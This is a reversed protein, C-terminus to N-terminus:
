RFPVSYPVNSFSVFNEAYGIWRFIQSCIMPYFESSVSNVSSGGCALTHSLELCNSAPTSKSKCAFLFIVFMSYQLSCWVYRFFYSFFLFLLFILHCFMWMLHCLDSAHFNDVFAQTCFKCYIKRTSNQPLVAFLIISHHYHVTFLSYYVSRVYCPKYLASSVPVNM